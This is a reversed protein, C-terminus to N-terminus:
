QINQILSDAFESTSLISADDRGRALDYTVNGELISKEMSSIILDAAENWGMYRFMMEGSLILSGPNAKNQGAYKPATGDTAEFVAKLLEDPTTEAFGGRRAKGIATRLASVIVVDNDNEVGLSGLPGSATNNRQLFARSM